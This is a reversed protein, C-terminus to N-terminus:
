EKILKKLNNKAEEITHGQASVAENRADFVIFINKDTNLTIRYEIAQQTFLM